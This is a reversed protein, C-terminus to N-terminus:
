LRWQSSNILHQIVLFTMLVKGCPYSILMKITQASHMEMTVTCISKTSTSRLRSRNWDFNGGEPTIVHSDCLIPPGQSWRWAGPPHPFAQWLGEYISQGWFRCLSSNFHILVGEGSSFLIIGMRSAQKCLAILIFREMDLETSFTYNIVGTHLPPTAHASLALWIALKFAASVWCRMQRQGSLIGCQYLQPKSRLISRPYKVRYIEVLMM